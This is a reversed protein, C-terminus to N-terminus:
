VRPSIVRRERFWAYGIGALTAYCFFVPMHYRPIADTLAFLPIAYVIPVLILWIRRSYLLAPIALLSGFYLAVMTLATLVNYLRGWGNVYPLHFEVVEFLSTWLYGPFHRLIKQQAARGIAEDREDLNLGEPWREHMLGNFSCAVPLGEWKRTVYEAVICRIPLTGTLQEAQEGRVYWTIANRYCGTPCFKGTYKATWGGWLMLPIAGLLAVTLVDHFRVRLLLLAVLLFFPFLVYHAETILLLGLATGCLISMHSHKTRDLALLSGMVVLFLLLALAERTLSFLIHFIPPSFLLFFGTITCARPSLIRAAERLFFWVAALYLASQVAFGVAPHPLRFVGYVVALFLSMGPERDTYPVRGDLSYLTDRLLHIAGAHYSAADGSLVSDELPAQLRLLFLVAWLLVFPTIWLFSRYQTISVLAYYRIRNAVSLVLSNKPVTNM